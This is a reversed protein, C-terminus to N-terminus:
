DSINKVEIVEPIEATIAIEINDKLTKNELM